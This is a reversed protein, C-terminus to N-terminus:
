VGCSILREQHERCLNLLEETQVMLSQLEAHDNLASTINHAAEAIDPLSIKMANSALNESIASLLCIDQAQMVCALREIELNIRLAKAQSEPLSSVQGDLDRTIITKIFHEVLKPDFQTGTGRRLEAFAEDRNLSKRYIRDSTMADYADAILIIRSRLPIDMGTPLDDHGPRGGYWAHSFRVINTLEPARFSADIIDVGLRDHQEMIKWEEKTLPGPKRLIHDPIALKGVDHLLAANELIYCDSPPMMNLGMAVAYDAVNYSHDATAKDRHELASLLAKVSFFPIYSTLRKIRAPESKAPDSPSSQVTKMPPKGKIDDWRCVRNRGNNKAEYLAKDAQDLMEQPSEAGLDISSIGLSTTISLNAPRIAEIQKRYKEAVIWASNIDTHPLLVCFEEGGYRCVTDGKRTSGLLLGSIGKLVEDGTAHGYTDNVNKFHDADVMICSLSLNHRRAKSWESEFREFFARRNYCNTLPDRMSLRRLEENQSKIKNRSVQLQELARELRTNKDEVSSVDDFTVMAGIINKGNNHIPTTNIIFLYEKDPTELKLPVSKRTIDSEVSAKWPPKDPSKGTKPDKWAITSAKKGILQSPPMSVIEAFSENTLVIEEKKDLIIVGESLTNLISKVRDPVVSSPDLHKLTKKLYLIYLLISVLVIFVFLEYKSSKLIKSLFGSAIDDFCVEITCLLNDNEYLPINLNRGQTSRIKPDNWYTEHNGSDFILKKSKDRAGISLIDDNQECIAQMSNRLLVTNKQGAALSFNMAIMETTSVRSQIKEHAPDPILGLMDALFLSTLLLVGLIISLRTVISIRKM